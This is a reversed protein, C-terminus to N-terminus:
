ACCTVTQTPADVACIFTYRTCDLQTAADSNNRETGAPEERLDLDDFRDLTM